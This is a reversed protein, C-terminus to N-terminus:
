FHFGGIWDLELVSHSSERARDDWTWLCLPQLPQLQYASARFPDAGFIGKGATAWWDHRTFVVSQSHRVKPFLGIKRCIIFHSMESLARAHDAAWTNHPADWNLILPWQDAVWMSGVCFRFVLVGVLLLSNVDVSPLPSSRWGSHPKMSWNIIWVCASAAALAKKGHLAQSLSAQYSDHWGSLVQQGSSWFGSPHVLIQSYNGLGKM